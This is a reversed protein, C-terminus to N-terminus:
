KKLKLKLEKETECEKEIKKFELPNILSEFNGQFKQSYIYGKKWTGHKWTGKIWIGKIWTGDEWTGDEWTGDKWTGHKWTGKEWFGDKWTGDKWTGKEWLGNIWTGKEWFGDKWTGDKWAGDKWTGKEWFGNVWAGYEWTGDEWTGYEWAGDEWTGDKWTGDEWTGDKWPGHKWTGNIWTFSDGENKFKDPLNGSAVVWDPLKEGEIDKFFKEGKTKFANKIYELNKSDLKEFTKGDDTSYSLPIILKTDYCVLVKGDRGGTFIMGDVNGELNTNKYLSLALESTNSFHKLLKESDYNTKYLKLQEEVFNNKDTHIKIRKKVPSKEFEAYDFVIFNYISVQFKVILDGYHEMGSKQQSDLDYTSYFGKGYMDGEGPKFGSTFIKNILDSVSTRHFVTANNGYINEFFMPKYREMTDGIKSQAKQTLTM